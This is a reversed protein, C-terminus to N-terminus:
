LIRNLMEQLATKTTIYENLKQKDLFSKSQGEIRFSLKDHIKLQVNKEKECKSCIM